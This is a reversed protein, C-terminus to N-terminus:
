TKSIKNKLNNMRKIMNRKKEKLAKLFLRKKEFYNKTKALYHSIQVKSWSIKKRQRIKNNVEESKENIIKGKSETNEKIFM